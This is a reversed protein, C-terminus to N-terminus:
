EGCTVHEKLKEFVKDGIGKIHKLDDVSQFDGNDVRYEIIAQAKAPGVGPITQLTKFDAHNIDVGAFACVAFMLVMVLSMLFKKM